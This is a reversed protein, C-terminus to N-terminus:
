TPNFKSRWLNTVHEQILRETSGIARHDVVPAEIIQINNKTCFNKEQNGVLCKAQNLRISRPIGHSEIYMELFKLVNPGNAKEYMCATTYKSFRDIAALFYVENGKEDFIHGGFDIQKEQNPEDCPTHPRGTGTWLANARCQCQHQSWKNYRRLLLWNHPFFWSAQWILRFKLIRTEFPSSVLFKPIREQMARSINSGSSSVGSGPDRERHMMKKNGKLQRTFHKIHSQIQEEVLKECTKPGRRDSYVKLPIQREQVTRFKAIDSKRVMVIAKGPEKITSNTPSVKLINSGPASAEYLRELNKKSRRKGHIKRAPKLQVARERIPIPRCAGSRIFRSECDRRAQERDNAEWATRTIGLEVEIDCRYRKLWKDDPLIEEPTVTTKM